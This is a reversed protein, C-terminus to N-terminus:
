RINRVIDFVFCFLGLEKWIQGFDSSFRTRRLKGVQVRGDRPHGRIVQPFNSYSKILANKDVVSALNGVLNVITM